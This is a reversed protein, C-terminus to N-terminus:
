KDRNKMPIKGVTTPPERSNRCAPAQHNNCGSFDISCLAVRKRNHDRRDCPMAIIIAFFLSAISDSLDEVVVVVVYLVIIIMM